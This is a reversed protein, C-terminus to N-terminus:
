RTETALRNVENKVAQDDPYKKLVLKYNDLAGKYDGIDNLFSAYSLIINVNGFTKNIAEQYLSKIEDNSKKLDYRYLQIKATYVIPDGGSIDIAKNFANEANQYDGKAVYVNGLDLYPVWVKGGSIDIAKKFMDIALNYSDKNNTREAVGEADMGQQLYKGYEAETQASMETSTAVPANQGPNAKHKKFEIFVFSGILILILLVVFILLKKKSM